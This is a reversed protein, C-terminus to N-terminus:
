MTSQSSKEEKELLQKELFCSDNNLGVYATCPDRERRKRGNELFREDAVRPLSETLVRM